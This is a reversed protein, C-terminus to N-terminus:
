GLVPFTIRVSCPADVFDGWDAASVADAVKTSSAADITSLELFLVKRGPKREAALLGTEGNLFVDEVHRAQPVSTMIIDQFVIGSDARKKPGIFNSTALVLM